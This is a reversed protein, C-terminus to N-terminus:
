PNTPGVEMLARLKLVSVERRLSREIRRFKRLIKKIIMINKRGKLFSQYMIFLKVMTLFNLPHNVQISERDESPGGQLILKKKMHNVVHTM